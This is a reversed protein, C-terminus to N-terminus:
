HKEIIEGIEQIDDTTLDSKTNMLGIWQGNRKIVKGYYYKDVYVHYGGGAGNPISLRVHKAQDGIIIEFEIDGTM